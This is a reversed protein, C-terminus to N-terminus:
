MTDLFLNRFLNAKRSLNTTILQKWGNCKIKILEHSSYNELFGEKIDLYFEYFANFFNELKFEYIKLCNFRCLDQLIKGLDMWTSVIM